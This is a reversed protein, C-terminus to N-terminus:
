ATPYCYCNRTFATTEAIASSPNESFLWWNNGPNGLAFVSGTIENYGGKLAVPSSALNM